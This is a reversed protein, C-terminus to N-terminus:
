RKKSYVTFILLILTILLISVPVNEQVLFMVTFIFLLIFLSIILPKYFLEIDEVFVIALIVIFAIVHWIRNLTDLTLSM